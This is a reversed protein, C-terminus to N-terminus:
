SPESARPVEIDRTTPAAGDSATPAKADRTAPAEADARELARQGAEAGGARADEANAPQGCHPCFRAGARVAAGCSLCRRSIEPLSM